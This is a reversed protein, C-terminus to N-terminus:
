MENYLSKSKIRILHIMRKFILAPTDELGKQGIFVLLINGIATLPLNLLSESFFFFLTGKLQVAM